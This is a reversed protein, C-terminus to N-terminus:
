RTIRLMYRRLTGIYSRLGKESFSRAARLSLPYKAPPPRENLTALTLLELSPSLGKFAHIVGSFQNKHRMPLPRPTPPAAAGVWNIPQFREGEMTSPTVNGGSGCETSQVNQMRPCSQGRMAADTVVVHM